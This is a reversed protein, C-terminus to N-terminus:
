NVILYRNLLSLKIRYWLVCPIGKLNSNHFKTFAYCKPRIDNRYGRYLAFKCRYITLMKYMFIHLSVSEEYPITMNLNSAQVHTASSLALSNTTVLQCSEGNEWNGHFYYMVPSTANQQDIFEFNQTTSSVLPQSMTSSAAPTASGPVDCESGFNEIFQALNSKTPPQSSVFADKVKPKRGRKKPPDNTQAKSSKYRRKTGKQSEFGLFNTPSTCEPLVGYNDITENNINELANTAKWTEDENGIAVNILQSLVADNEEDQQQQAYHELLAEVSTTDKKKHSKKKKNEPHFSQQQRLQLSKQKVEQARVDFIKRVTNPESLDIEHIMDKSFLSPIKIYYSRSTTSKEVIMEEECHHIIGTTSVTGESRDKQRKKRRHGHRDTRSNKSSKVPSLFEYKFNSSTKRERRTRRLSLPISDVTESVSEGGDHSDSEGFSLQRISKKSSKSRLRKISLTENDSSDSLREEKKVNRQDTDAKRSRENQDQWSEVNDRNNSLMSKADNIQRIVSGAIMDFISPDKAKLSVVVESQLQEELKKNVLPLREPVSKLAPNLMLIQEMLRELDVNQRQMNM